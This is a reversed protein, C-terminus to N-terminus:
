PIDSMENLPTEVRQDTDLRPVSWRHKNIM